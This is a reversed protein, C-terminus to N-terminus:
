RDASDSEREYQEVAELLEAPSYELTADLLAELTAYTERLEEIRREDAETDQGDLSRLGALASDFTRQSARVERHAYQQFVEQLVVWLSTETTFHVRSGGDGASRRRVLGLRALRRTATSITSKAYGTAEVLDPISLPREAFHLTGYIRGASRSLGYVEASRELSEVVEERVAERQESEM